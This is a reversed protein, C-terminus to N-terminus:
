FFYLIILLNVSDEIIACNTIIGTLTYVFCCCTNEPPKPPWFGVPPRTCYYVWSIHETLLSPSMPIDSFFTVLSHCLDKARFSKWHQENNPQWVLAHSLNTQTSNCFVLSSLYQLMIQALIHHTSLTHIFNAIFADLNIHLLWNPIFSASQAFRQSPPFSMQASPFLFITSDKVNRLGILVPRPSPPPPNWCM